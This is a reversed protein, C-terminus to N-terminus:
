SLRGEDRASIAYYIADTGGRVIGMHDECVAYGNMVTIAEEAVGERIYLCVACHLM